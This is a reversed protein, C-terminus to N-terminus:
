FPSDEDGGFGPDSDVPDTAAVTGKGDNVFTFNVVKFKIKSRKNGEKDTWSDQIATTVVSLQRGKTMYKAILEAHAGWAEVDIFTVAKEGNKNKFGTNIAMGFSCVPTNNAGVHKLEPDRTLNGLFVCNNM